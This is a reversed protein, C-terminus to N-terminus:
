PEMVLEPTGKELKEEIGRREDPNAALFDELSGKNRLGNKGDRYRYETEYVNVGDTFVGPRLRRERWYMGSSDTFLHKPSFNWLTRWSREKVFYQGSVIREERAAAAKAALETTEDNSAATTTRTTTTTTTRPTKKVPATLGTNQYHAMVDIKGRQFLDKLIARRNVHVLRVSWDSGAPKPRAHWEVPGEKRVIGVFQYKNNSEESTSSQKKAKAIREAEAAFAKDFAQSALKERAALLRRETRAVKRQWRPDETDQSAMLEDIKAQVAAKQDTQAQLGAAYKKLFEERPSLEKDNTKKDFITFTQLPSAMRIAHASPIYWTITSLFLTVTLVLSLPVMTNTRSRSALSAM